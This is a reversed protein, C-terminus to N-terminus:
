KRKRWAYCLLGVLGSLLLLMTGPEPTVTLEAADVYSPHLAGDSGLLSADNYAVQALLWTTGVPIPGSVSIPEWTNTLNDLTLTNGIFTTLSPYNSATFFSVYVGGLAAPVNQNADFMASMNVTAGGSNILAADSTVDIAQFGQTWTQGDDTMSLMKVGQFPTVGGDVGTITAAEVGWVGPNMPNPNNIVYADTNLPNLEFSPDVLLNAGASPTSITIALLLGACAFFLNTRTNM